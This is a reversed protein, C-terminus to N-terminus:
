VCGQKNMPMISCMTLIKTRLQVQFCPGLPFMNCRADGSSSLHVQNVMIRWTSHLWLPMACFSCHQWPRRYKGSWDSSAAPSYVLQDFQVEPVNWSYTWLGGLDGWLFGENYDQAFHGNCFLCLHLLTWLCPSMWVCAILGKFLVLKCLSPWTSHSQLFFLFNCFVNRCVASQVFFTIPKPHSFAPQQFWCHQMLSPPICFSLCALCSLYYNIVLVFGNGHNRVCCIIWHCLGHM